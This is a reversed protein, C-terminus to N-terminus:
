RFGGAASISGTNRAYRRLLEDIQRAVANADLAGDVNITYNNVVPSSGSSGGFLAPLLGSGVAGSDEGLGYLNLGMLSEAGGDFGIAGGGMFNMVDRLWGPISFGNFLRGVWDIAGRVAGSIRGIFGTIAGVAGDVIGRAGDWLGQWTDRVWGVAGDVARTVNDLAGQVFGVLGNWVDQVFKVAGNWADQFFTTSTAVWTIFGVIAAVVLGIFAVLTLWPAAMIAIAVALLGLVILIGAFAEQNENIWTVVNSLMDVFFQLVPLLLTGLKVAMEEYKTRLTEMKGATTEAYEAAAGHKGAAFEAVIAEAEAAKAAQLASGELDGLGKAELRRMVEADSISPILTQLSDYEGRRAAAAMEAVDSVSRGTARAIDAYGQINKTADAFAQESSKGLGKHYEGEQAAAREFESQTMGWGKTSTKFFEDSQKKLDGYTKSFVFASKSAELASGLADQGFKAVGAGLAAGIAIGAGKAIGTLRQGLSQMDSAANDVGKRFDKADSIIKVSLIASKTAM